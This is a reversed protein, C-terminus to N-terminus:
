LILRSDFTCGFARKYVFGYASTEFDMVAPFIVCARYIRRMHIIVKQAYFAFSTCSKYVIESVMGLKRQLTNNCIYIFAMRM